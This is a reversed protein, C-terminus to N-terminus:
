RAPEKRKKKRNAKREQYRAHLEGIAVQDRKDTYGLQSSRRLVEELQRTSVGRYKGPERNKIGNEIYDFAEESSKGGELQLAEVEVLARNMLHADGNAAGWQWKKWWYSSRREREDDGRKANLLQANVDAEYLRMGALNAALTRAAGQELEQGTVPHKDGRAWEMLNIGAYGPPVLPPLMLRATHEALGLTTGAAGPGVALGFARESMEPSLEKGSFPDVGTAIVAALNAVPNSFPNIQAAEFFGEANKAEGINAMPIMYSMDIFVPKGDVRFPMALMKKGQMYGPLASKAGELEDSSFGAVAGLAEGLAEVANNWGFASLPKEVLANKWIRASETVFSAFPIGKRMLNTLPSNQSFMPQFKAVDHTARAIAEGRLDGAFGEAKLKKLWEDRRMIFADVKAVEDVWRYMGEATSAVKTTGGATKKMIWSQGVFPLRTLMQGVSSGVSEMDGIARAMHEHLERTWSSGLLGARLAEDFDANGPGERLAARGARYLPNKPNFIGAGGTTLQHFVAAGFVNRFHTAPNLVTKSYKFWGLAGNYYKGLGEAVDAMGANIRLMGIMDNAVAPDILKGRLAEPFRGTYGPIKAKALLEDAPIWGLHDRAAQTAAERSFEGFRLMNVEETKFWLDVKEPDYQQRVMRTVSDEPAGKRFGSFIRYMSAKLEEPTKVAASRTLRLMYNDGAINMAAKAIKVTGVSPDLVATLVGEDSLMDAEEKTMKKQLNGVEGFVGHKKNAEIYEKWVRPMYTRLGGAYTKEDIMGSDFLSQHVKLRFDWTKEYLKQVDDRDSFVSAIDNKDVGDTLAKHFTERDADTKLTIRQREALEQGQRLWMEREATYERGWTSHLARLEFPDAGVEGIMKTFEPDDARRAVSSSMFGGLRTRAVGHKVDLETARAFDESTFAELFRGRRSSAKGFKAAVGGAEYLRGAAGVGKAVKAASTGWKAVPLAFTAYDITTWIPDEKFSKGIRDLSWSVGEDSIEFGYSKVLENMIGVGAGSGEDRDLEALRAERRAAREEARRARDAQRMALREEYGGGFSM